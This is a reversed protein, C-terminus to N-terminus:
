RCGYQRLILKDHCSTFQSGLKFYTQYLVGCFLLTHIFNYVQYVRTTNFTFCDFTLVNHFTIGSRISEHSITQSPEVRICISIKYKAAFTQLQLFIKYEYPKTFNHRSNFHFITLINFTPDGFRSADHTTLAVTRSRFGISSVRYIMLPRTM